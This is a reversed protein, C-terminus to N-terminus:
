DAKVRKPRSCKPINMSELQRSAAAHMQREIHLLVACPKAMWVAAFHVEAETLQDRVGGGRAAQARPRDDTGANFLADDFTRLGAKLRFRRVSGGSPPVVFKKAAPMASATMMVLQVVIIPSKNEPAARGSLTRVAKPYGFAPNTPL